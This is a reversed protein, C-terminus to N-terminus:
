WNVIAITLSGPLSSSSQLMDLLRTSLRNAESILKAPDLVPHGSALWLVNFRRDNGTMVVLSFRDLYIFAFLYNLVSCILIVFAGFSIAGVVGM